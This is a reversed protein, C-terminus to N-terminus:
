TGQGDEGDIPKCLAFDSIAVKFNSFILINDPKLDLHVFGKRHITETGWLLQNFIQFISIESIGQQYKEENNFIHLALDGEKSFNTIFYSFEDYLIKGTYTMVAGWRINFGLLKVMGDTQESNIKQMNEIEKTLIEEAEKSKPIKIAYLSENFGDIVLLM